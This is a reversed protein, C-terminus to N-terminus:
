KIPADEIWRVSYGEAQQDILNTAGFTTVLTIIIIVGPVYKSIM